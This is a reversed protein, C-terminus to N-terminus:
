NRASFLLKRTRISFTKPHSLLNRIVGEFSHEHDQWDEPEERYHFPFYLGNSAFESAVYLLDGRETRGNIRVKWKKKKDYFPMTNPLVKRM